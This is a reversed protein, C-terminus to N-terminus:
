FDGGMSGGNQGGDDDGGQEMPGEPKKKNNNMNGFSWAIQIMGRRGGRWSESDQRFGVGSTESRFKRSALLDRGNVAVTLKKNFFTKRMGMDLNYNAKRKGQTIVRAANYNFTTQFSIEKPLMVSALVKANWSFDDDSNVVIPYTKGDSLKYDFTGGDLKYYYFNITSTLDLRTFLRNKVIIELGSNLDKAMNETTSYRIGNDIYSIRQMINTSPRYYASLSLTHNDWTKIYNFELSNSYTPTLEPNGYSINTSDSINKFSNLQGGWPRRLRRTYNLQLEQSESIHYSLYATPFMKFFSKKFTESEGGKFEAAYDKSEADVNWGEGRLGLQYGFAENIKQQWNLYVAHINSDYIFRNYLSENIALNHTDISQVGDQPNFSTAPPNFTKTPSNQHSFDGKYGAEIKIDDTIPQQYDLQVEWDKHKNDMEQKQYSIVDQDTINVLEQQNFVPTYHSTQLYETEGDMNFIGRSITLDIDHGTKWEHRYGFNFNIMRMDNDSNNDRRRDMRYGLTSYGPYDASEYKYEQKNEGGGNMSMFGLTLDDHMTIHWTLGARGFINLGENKGKNTSNLYSLPTGFPAISSNETAQLNDRDTFGGSKMKRRGVGINGYADIIGSSFNINAGIRFGKNTNANAQIGGYYGAKRDRKLVINIIGASGEASYKSSPNSIVEIHDISEAPLQQLIDGRNDSTMGQAKGNIWITVSSSGRLSINGEADVEVSPINELVESASGGVSAIDQDVNFVKKDIDLKMTQKQAVVAVEELQESDEELVIKLKAKHQNQSSLVVTRSVPRYGMMQIKLQFTGDNVGPITFDGNIDSITGKVMTTGDQQYLIVNVFEMPNGAADNIKGEISGAMALTTTVLLSLMISLRRFAQSMKNKM